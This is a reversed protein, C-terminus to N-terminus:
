LRHSIDKLEYVGKKGKVSVLNESKTMRYLKNAVFKRDEALYGFDRYLGVLIEDVNAIGQYRRSITEIIKQELDDLQSIILQKRLAEPLDSVDGIRKGIMTPDQDNM